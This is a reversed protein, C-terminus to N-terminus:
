KRLIHDSSTLHWKKCDCKYARFTKGAAHEKTAQVAATELAQKETDYARKHLCGKFKENSGEVPRTYSNFRKPTRTKGM